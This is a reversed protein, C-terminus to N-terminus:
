AMATPRLVIENVDVEPPQALAFAIAQAVALVPIAIEHIARTTEAADPDTVSGPLETDVPGPSIITSRINYPTLEQRMGESIARVAFKTASYVATTPRVRLGATSAVNVIHGGRQRQMIPLAAAIGYLVGKLNVDIMREWDEVRRQDLRSLPMLGANNVMVDLRGFAADAVGVLAEVQARSSVDTALVRAEGGAARIEAAVADLRSTRRAGLVVRAGRAALYRATAEGIGSSAGTVVVVKGAIHENAEV